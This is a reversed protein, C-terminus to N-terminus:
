DKNRYTIYTVTGYSTCTISKYTTKKEKQLYHLYSYRSYNDHLCNIQLYAKEKEKHTAIFNFFSLIYEQM